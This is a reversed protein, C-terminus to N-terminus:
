SPTCLNPSQAGPFVYRALDSFGFRSGAIAQAGLGFSCQKALSVAEDIADFPIIAAVPAFSAERCIAADVPTDLLFTPPFARVGWGVPLLVVGAVM